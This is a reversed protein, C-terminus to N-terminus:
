DDREPQAGGYHQHSLLPQVVVWSKGVVDTDRTGRGHCPGLALALCEKGEVGM